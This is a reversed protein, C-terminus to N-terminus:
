KEQVCWVHKDSRLFLQNGALAPSADVPEGLKNTALVELKEGAKIVVTTGDRDTLYIKGDAAVPSAYINHLDDIRERDIVIEGTTADVATLINNNSQVFYLMGDVLVPSPVYPTGRSLKWLTKGSVDGTADLPIATAVSGRYGSMVVVTNKHQLPSPICNVTLGDHYWLIEGTDADYSRVQNTGPTIVQTKGQHELVLPTAWSSPEDRDVKWLTKGDSANLAILFSDGEHDWTVFVRDKYLSPTVAEGWGRRTEQRGLQQEWLINGNLDLCFIGFSGFSVLLKEGDTVPSGAAYSHTVHHGEHPVKETCVKEWLVKGTNRDLAMVVFQHYTDPAQTRKDFRPDPKPIDEAVAQKGTDVSTTVFVKDGWVIPTASGRGQLPTKWAINKSADWQLPPNATQSTGDLAPGRWQPWQKSPDIEASHAISFSLLFFLCMLLRLM